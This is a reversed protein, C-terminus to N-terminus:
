SAEPPRHPFAQFQVVVTEEGPGREGEPPHAARHRDVVAHLEETLAALQAPTLHFRSVAVTSADYWDRGWDQDLFGAMRVYTQNLVESLYAAVPERLGPDERLQGADVRMPREVYRWWRERRNGRTPDDEVFGHEALQRLHWSLTGSSEGLRAALGTATAPGDLWLLEVVRVRLPHALGRLSRADLHREDPV